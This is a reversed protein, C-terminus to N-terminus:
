LVVLMEPRVIENLSIEPPVCVRLLVAGGKLHARLSKYCLAEKLPIEDAMARTKEVAEYIADVCSRKVPVVFTETTGEKRETEREM